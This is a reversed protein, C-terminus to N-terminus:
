VPQYDWNIFGPLSWNLTLDNFHAIIVENKTILVDKGVVTMKIRGAGMMGSLEVQVHLYNIISMMELVTFSVTKFKGRVGKWTTYM